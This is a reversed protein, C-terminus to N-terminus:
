IFYGIKVIRIFVFSLIYRNNCYFCVALNYFGRVSKTILIFWINVVNRKQLMKGGLGKLIQANM